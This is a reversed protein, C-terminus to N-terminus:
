EIKELHTDKINKSKEIFDSYNKEYYYKNESDLVIFNDKM